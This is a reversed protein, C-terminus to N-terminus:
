NLPTSLELIVSPTLELCSHIGLNNTLVIRRLQLNGLHRYAHTCRSPARHTQM